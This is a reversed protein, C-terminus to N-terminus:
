GRSHLGVRKGRGLAAALAPARQDTGKDNGSPLVKAVQNIGIREAESTQLRSRM